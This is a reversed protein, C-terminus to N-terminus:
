ENIISLSENLIDIVKKGIVENEYLYEITYIKNDQFIMHEYVKFKSQVNSDGFDKYDGNYNVKLSNGDVNIDQLKRVLGPIKNSEKINEICKQITYDSDNDSISISISNKGYHNSIDDTKTLLAIMGNNSDTAPFTQFYDPIELILNQFFIKNLSFNETIEKNTNSIFDGEIYGLYKSDNKTSKNVVESQFQNDDDLYIGTISRAESNMNSIFLYGAVLIITLICTIGFFKKKM